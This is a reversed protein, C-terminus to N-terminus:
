GYPRQEKNLIIDDEDVCQRYPKKYETNWGARTGRQLGDNNKIWYGYCGNGGTTTGCGIVFIWSTIMILVWLSIRM